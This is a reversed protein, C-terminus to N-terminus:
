DLGPHNAAYSSAASAVANNIALAASTLWGLNINWYMTHRETIAERGKISCTVFARPTADM